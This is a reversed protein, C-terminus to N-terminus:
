AVVVVEEEGYRESQVAVVVGDGAPDFPTVAKFVKPVVEGPNTTPVVLPTTLTTFLTYPDDGVGILQVVSPGEDDMDATATAPAM